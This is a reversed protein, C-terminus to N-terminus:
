YHGALIIELQWLVAIQINKCLLQMLSHCLALAAEVEGLRHYCLIFISLEIRARARAMTHQKLGAPSAIWCM